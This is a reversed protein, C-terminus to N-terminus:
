KLRDEVYDMKTVVVHMLARPDTLVKGGKDEITEDFKGMDDAVRM